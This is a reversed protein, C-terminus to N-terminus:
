RGVYIIGDLLSDAEEKKIYLKILEYAFYIACGMGRGTIINGDRVAPVDSVVQAGKLKGEFGPYCCAKVGNLIGAEGLLSPAACIAAVYKGEEAFENVQNMLVECKGLNLTGPMGGPLIIMEFENFEIESILKDAKVSIDHSGTVEYSDSVSVLTIDIKVRRFMDVVTLAEIEEFGQALFIATKSM